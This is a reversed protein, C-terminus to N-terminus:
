HTNVAPAVSTPHSHIHTFNVSNYTRLVVCAANIDNTWSSKIDCPIITPNSRYWSLWGIDLLIPWQRTDIGIGSVLVLVLTYCLETYKNQLSICVASLVPPLEFSSM